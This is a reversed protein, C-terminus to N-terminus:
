GLSKESGPDRHRHHDSWRCSRPPDIDGASGGARAKGAQDQQMYFGEALSRTDAAALRPLGVALRGM